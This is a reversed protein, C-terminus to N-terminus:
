IVCECVFFKCKNQDWSISLDTTFKRSPLCLIKLEMDKIFAGKTKLILSFIWKQSLIFICGLDYSRKIGAAEPQLNMVEIVKISIKSNSIDCQLHIIWGFFRNSFLNHLCLNWFTKSIAWLALYIEASCSSESHSKRHDPPYIQEWHNHSNGKITESLCLLSTM